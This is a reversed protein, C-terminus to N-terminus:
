LVVSLYGLLLNLGMNLRLAESVRKLNGLKELVENANQTTVEVHSLYGKLIEDVFNQIYIRDLKLGSIIELVKLKDKQLSACIIQRALECLEYDYSEPNQRQDIFVECRSLITGILSNINKCLLIFIVGKPPEELVKIFANQAQVTLRDAFKIIYVKFKGENPVINVDRRISRISDIKICKSDKDMSITKLDPHAGASIKVCSDCVGCATQTNKKCNLVKVMELVETYAKEINEAELIIAHPVKKNKFLKYLNQPYSLGKM